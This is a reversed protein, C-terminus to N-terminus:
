QNRLANFQFRGDGLDFFNVVKTIASGDQMKFEVIFERQPPNSKLLYEALEVSTVYPQQRLWNEIETLSGANDIAAALENKRVEIDMSSSFTESM